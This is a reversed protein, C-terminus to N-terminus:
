LHQHISWSAVLSTEYLVAHINTTKAGKLRGIIVIFLLQTTTQDKGKGGHLADPRAAQDPHQYM